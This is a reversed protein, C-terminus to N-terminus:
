KLMFQALAKKDNIGLKIYITKIYSRVTHESIDLHTSIEQASWGRNYLMAVTFETTSLNDAVSKKSLINHIKIWNSGFDKITSMLREYIHPSSRKFTADIIGMLEAYHEGVIEYFGDAEILEWLKTFREKAERTRMLGLLSIVALLNCYIVPLPFEDPALALALDAIELAVEYKKHRYAKYSLVYCAWLKLGGTLNKIYNELPPAKITDIHLLVNLAHSTLVGVAHEKIPHDPNSFGIYLQKCLEDVSFRALHTRGLAINIFICNLQASYKLAPVSSILYPELIEAAKEPNGTYYYYEGLAINRDDADTLSNIYELSKGSAFNGSLLPVAQRFVLPNHESPVSNRPDPCNAPIRWDRGVKHAGTLKGESAWKQVARLTVGMRQAAERVSEYDM